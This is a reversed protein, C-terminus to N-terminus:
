FCFLENRDLSGLFFLFRRISSLEAYAADFISM